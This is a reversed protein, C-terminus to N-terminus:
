SLVVLHCRNNHLPCFSGVSRDANRCRVEGTINILNGTLLKKFERRTYEDVNYETLCDFTAVSKDTNDCTVKIIVEIM